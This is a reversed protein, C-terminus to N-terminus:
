REVRDVLGYERAQEADFTRSGRLDAEIQMPKQGADNALMEFVISEIGRTDGQASSIPTFSVRGHALLTRHGHAGHALLLTAAGQVHALGRTYVPPKLEDIADRVALASVVNGGPSDLSLTIPAAVDLSQLYLLKAIVENAAADDLTGQLIVIRRSLLDSGESQLDSRSAVSQNESRNSDRCGLIGVAILMPMLVRTVM